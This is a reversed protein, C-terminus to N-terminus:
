LVIENKDNSNNNQQKRDIRVRTTPILKREESSCSCDSDYDNVNETPELKKQSLNTGNSSGIIKKQKESAILRQTEPDDLLMEMFIKDEPDIEEQRKKWTNQVIERKNYSLMNLGRIMEMMMKSSFSDEKIKKLRSLNEEIKNKKTSNFKNKHKNYLIELKNISKCIINEFFYKKRDKDITNTETNFFSLYASEANTTCYSNFKPLKENFNVHDILKLVDTLEYNFINDIDNLTLNSIDEDGAKTISLNTNNNNGNILNCNNNNVINTIKKGQKMNRIDRQIEDLKNNINYMAMLKKDEQKIKEKCKIQHRKLNDSRSYEKYCYDCTLDNKPQLNNPIQFNQPLVNVNNQNKVSLDSHFNKNHIWLSQYSSYYKNCIDCKYEM